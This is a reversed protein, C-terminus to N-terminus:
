TLFPAVIQLLRHCRGQVCPGSRIEILQTEFLTMFEDNDRLTSCVCLIDDININNTSEVNKKTGMNRVLRTLVQIAKRNFKRTKCADLLQYGLAKKEALSHDNNIREILTPDIIHDYHHVKDM